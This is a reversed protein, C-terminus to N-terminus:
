TSSSWPPAEPVVPLPRADPLRLVRQRDEILHHGHLVHRRGKGDPEDRYKWVGGIDDTSEFVLCDLNCARLHKCAVLGSLGAGVIVADTHQM